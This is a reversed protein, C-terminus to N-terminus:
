KVLEEYDKETLVKVGLANAKDLKSGAKEGAILYNLNKSVSSLMVGGLAVIKDEMEKRPISLTGTILFTKGTIATQAVAKPAEGEFQLGIEKLKTVLAKLSDEQFAQTLMEATKEGVDPINVLDAVEAAMLKDMTGFHAALIKAMSTGVQPLGLAFLVRDFPRSKSKEIAAMLKTASREGMKERAAIEDKQLSFIDAIGKLRGESVLASVLSDGLGEIDMANRSVFQKLAAALRAPCLTNPCRWRVEGTPKVLATGCEPCNEPFVIAKADAPRKELVSKVVKPIIEGGKEIFVTDGIMVNLRAIEDENHLSARSITSGSLLVPELEAVPTVVGTRGVQFSVDRLLTTAQLAAYKYAVAWRPFKGTSGLKERTAYDNVKIVAGDIDYPLNFRLSEIADLRANVEEPTQCLANNENVPLGLSKCWALDETHSSYDTPSDVGYIYMELGRAAALSSDLLKLSGAAANRPNAFPPQNEAAREKNLREFASKPMFVEGRIILEGKYPIEAPMNHLTRVNATIDEGAIGDGRTAGLVIRGNRYTISVAAGDM